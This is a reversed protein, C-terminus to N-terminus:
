ILSKATLEECLVQKRAIDFEILRTDFDIKEVATQNAITVNANSM